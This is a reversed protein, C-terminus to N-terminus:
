DNDPRTFLSFRGGSYNLLFNVFELCHSNKGDSINKIRSCIKRSHKQNEYDAEKDAEKFTLRLRHGARTGTAALRGAPLEVAMYARRIVPSFRFPAMNEVTRLIIMEKSLFLVDIAYTMFCTHISQCPLLILAEGPKLDPRGLLGKLRAGFTDATRVYAALVTNNSINVIQM